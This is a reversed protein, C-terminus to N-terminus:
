VRQINRVYDLIKKAGGLALFAVFIPYILYESARDYMMVKKNM